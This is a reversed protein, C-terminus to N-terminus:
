LAGLTGFPAGLSGLPAGSAGLLVWSTGFFGWCIGLLHEFRATENAFDINVNTDASPVYTPGNGSSGASTVLQNFQIFNDTAGSGPADVVPMDILAFKSYEFNIDPNYYARTLDKAASAFAYM